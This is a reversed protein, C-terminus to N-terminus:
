REFVGLYKPNKLMKNRFTEESSQYITLGELLGFLKDISVYVFGGVALLTLCSLPPELIDFGAGSLVAMSAFLSIGTLNLCLRQRGAKVHGMYFQHLGFTSGFVALLAAKNKSISNPDKYKIVNTSDVADSLSASCDVSKAFLSDMQKQNVKFDNGFSTNASLFVIIFCLLCPM